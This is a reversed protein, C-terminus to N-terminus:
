LYVESTAGVLQENPSSIIGDVCVRPCYNMMPGVYDVMPYGRAGGMRTQLVDNSSQFDFVNFVGFLTTTEWSRAHISM